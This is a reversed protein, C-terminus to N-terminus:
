LEFTWSIFSLAVGCCTAEFCFAHSSRCLPAFVSLPSPYFPLDVLSLPSDATQPKYRFYVLQLQRRTREEMWGHGDDRGGRVAGLRTSMEMGRARESARESMAVMGNM